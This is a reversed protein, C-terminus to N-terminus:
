YCYEARSTYRKQTYNPPFKIMCVNKDKENPNSFCLQRSSSNIDISENNRKECDQRRKMDMENKKVLWYDEKKEQDKFKKLELSEEKFKKQQNLHEKYDESDFYKKERESFDSITSVEDQTKKSVKVYCHISNNPVILFNNNLCYTEQSFSNVTLFLILFLFFLYFINIFKFNIIM